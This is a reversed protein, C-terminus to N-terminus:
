GLLQLVTQTQTNALALVATGANTLVQSRTLRSTEVAFDSDRIKSESATVNELAASLSRINTQLTNREFAGLRGRLSSVEDIATDIIDSAAAFNESALASVGGSKLANLFQFETGGNKLAVTTGGLRSDAISQIGINVQQSANVQPGLQFLSGGGTIHFTAATGTITQGFSSSLTLELDLSSSRIGIDLGRGTAVAGNVIAIVDRGRDQDTPTVIAPNNYDLTSPAGDNQLAVPQFFDGTNGLRRISVFAESGYDLSFFRLGSTIDTASVRQAQIGTAGGLNNIADRVDNLTSGSNFTLVQVGEPGAVELTVKEFLEGDVAGVPATPFAAGNTFDGRFFLQAQQASGITEVDVQVSARGLFNAANVQTKIIETSDVGSITYGLEGNLLKLGAFSATNSIRTISEIASDVQLQNAEIEEPSIAGSNAAEIVLAKVSNLLESVESLAGETTAIVSSARESNNIGQEIGRLEARLRESTILGAPDDAGRNIRLGTSLRELRVSLDDNARSLNRQAILSAINSNIRTM